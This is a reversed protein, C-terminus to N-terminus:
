QPSTQMQSAIPDREFVTVFKVAYLDCITYTNRQPNNIVLSNNGVIELYGSKEVLQGTGISFECIVFYGISQKLASILTTQYFGQNPGAMTTDISSQLDEDGGMIPQRMENDNPM